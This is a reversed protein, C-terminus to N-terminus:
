SAEDDARDDDRSSARSFHRRRHKKHRRGEKDHKDRSEEKRRKERKKSDREDQRAYKKQRRLEREERKKRRYEKRELKAAKRDLESSHNSDLDFSATERGRKKNEPPSPQAFLDQGHELNYENALQKGDYAHGPGKLAGRSDTAAAGSLSQQLKEEKELVSKPLRYNEVHDIRLSRGRLQIGCFNDVALICSRADEYKCFAFGKSKGTTEDRVLHIDEMEGFQSLVCLVDGESLDHDLNGIYVWASQAYKSHWSASTGAIGRALEEDNIKQIERITNM